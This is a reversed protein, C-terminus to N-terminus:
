RRENKCNDEENMHPHDCETKEIGHGKGSGPKCLSEGSELEDRAFRELVDDIKGEIGMIAQIGKESFLRQARSGMGGAIIYSVGKESLFEPLFGPQHGPNDIVKKSLVKGNEIEAITFHPCRGFHASVFEGDTSVAVKM